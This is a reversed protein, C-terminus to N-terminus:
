GASHCGSAGTKKAQMLGLQSNCGWVFHLDERDSGWRIRGPDVKFCVSEFSRRKALDLLSSGLVHATRPWRREALGDGGPVHSAHLAMARAWLRDGSFQKSTSWILRAEKQSDSGLCHVTFFCKLPGDM